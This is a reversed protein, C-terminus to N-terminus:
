ITYRNNPLEAQSLNLQNMLLNLYLNGVEPHQDLYDKFYISVYEPHDIFPNRNGQYQYIINNRNQEFSDVPDELHWKLLQKLMAMQAGALQYNNPDGQIYPDDSLVLQPYAAVMYFLIRATDGKHDDGPYYSWGPADKEDFYRNDRSNNTSPVIARLNHLDSAISAETNKVREQGLRSNAWVHEKNWANGENWYIIEIKHSDYMSYLYSEKETKVLDSQELVYQVDGYALLRKNANNLIARLADKFENGTLNNLSAYYELDTFVPLDKIPIVKDRKSQNKNKISELDFRGEVFTLTNEANYEFAIDDITTQFTASSDIKDVTFKLYVPKTQNIEYTYTTASTTLQYKQENIFNKGDLSYSLILPNKDSKAKFTIKKLNNISYLTEVQPITTTAKYTRMQLSAIGSIVAAKTTTPSGHLISWQHPEKGITKPTTNNYSTSPVFGEELEFGIEVPNLYSIYDQLYIEELNEDSFIRLEVTKKFLNKWQSIDAITDKTEIVKEENLYVYYTEVDESPKWTLEYGKLFITEDKNAITDTPDPNPNPDPDPNPNPDPDPNTTDEKALVTVLFAKSGKDDTKITATLTVNNILKNQKVTVQYNTILLVTPDNSVWTLEYEDVKNPLVFDKVITDKTQGEGYDITIKDYLAEFDPQKNCAVLTLIMTIFIFLTTIKKM